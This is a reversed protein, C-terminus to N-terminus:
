IELPEINQPSNLSPSNVKRSVTYLEMKNSAYPKLFPLLKKTDYENPDLWTDYNDKSIIAPMRDHISAVLENSETTIITCTCIEEGEPSVWLSYLGAFGFPKKSKLRIYVPTKVKEKKWEYFGDAIVLCRQNRFANRFAPKDAVTEARANIMRHAMGPDKAWSPLFGWRCHTLIRTGDKKVIVINQTPAINYSPIYEISTKDVHFEEVITKSPSFLVFPGCM